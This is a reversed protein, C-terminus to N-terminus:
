TDKNTNSLVSLQHEAAHYDTLTLYLWRVVHYCWRPRTIVTTESESYCNWCSCATRYCFSTRSASYLIMCAEAVKMDFIIYLGLKAAHCNFICHTESHLLRIDSDSLVPTLTKRLKSAYSPCNRM